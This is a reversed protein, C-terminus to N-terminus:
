PRSLSLAIFFIIHAKSGEESGGEETRKKGIREGESWGRRTRDRGPENGEDVSGGEVSGRGGSGSARERM